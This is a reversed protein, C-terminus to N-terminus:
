PQVAWLLRCFCGVACSLMLAMWGADLVKGAWDVRRKRYAHTTPAANRTAELLPAFVQQESQHPINSTRDMLQAM